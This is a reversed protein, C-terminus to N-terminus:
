SLDEKVPSGAPKEIKIYAHVLDSVDYFGDFDDARLLKSVKDLDPNAKQAELNAQSLAQVALPLKVRAIAIIDKKSLTAM